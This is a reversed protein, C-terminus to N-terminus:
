TPVQWPYAIRATSSIPLRDVLIPAPSDHGMALQLADGFSGMDEAYPSGKQAKWQWIMGLKFVREDLRFSDGDAVFTDGNGGAALSVCNKDLYIYRASVGVGMVPWVHLQNGYITWEGWADTENAARRQLWEDTDPFFRMPQQTSTSRWVNANLLMRKFNAPLNFAETVGDGSHTQSVRLAQWDRTDYAIRQAVENALAVMEQMERVATLSAFVSTPVTVGVAACVDKVVSLITM